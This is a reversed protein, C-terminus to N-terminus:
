KKIGVSLGESTPIMISEFKQHDSLNINFERMAKWMAVNEKPKQDQLVLGFLLTNDAIVMGGRRLLRHAHELYLKYGSKNADIFIADYSQDPLTTLYEMADANLVKIRSDYALNKQALYALEPIKELCLLSGDQPLSKALWSASYGALTGIELINKAGHLRLLLYVLKAEAPNLQINYQQLPASNRIKIQNEDEQCYLHSIYDMLDDQSRAM